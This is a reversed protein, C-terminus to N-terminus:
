IAVFGFFDLMRDFIILQLTAQPAFRAWIPFFGRYFAFPGEQKLVKLSCDVFGNYIKQNTPQNM